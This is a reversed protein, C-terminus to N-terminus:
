SIAFLGFDIDEVKEKKPAEAKGFEPQETKAAAHEIRAQAIACYEANQEIGVFRFGSLMCAKGTSGSGAFPDFCVGGPPTVLTVLWQMLSTPKTTPHVNKGEDLGENRDRQSAKPVYKIGPVDEEQDPPFQPFFRAASGGDDDHGYTTHATEKGKAVSKFDGNNRPRGSSKGTEPFQRLVEESGDLLLNPPWRGAPEGNIAANNQGGSSNKWGNNGPKNNRAMKAGDTIPVRCAEINIAGTGWKLVTEAITGDLPKRCLLIPEVSPKLNSGWGAWQAAERTAPETIDMTRKPEGNEDYAWPREYGSHTNASSALKHVTGVVKRTMGAEQDIAKSVDRSKPFGAGNIWAISDRIEFGALRLSIGMLDQTRTGAFALLHGGPKLVRYCERWIEPGPVFGDWSNSMFGKKGHEYIGGAIWATLCEVIDQQSHNSLGYPPDCVISDLSNDPFGKTVELCDGNFLRFREGERLIDRM